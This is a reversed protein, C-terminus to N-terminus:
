DTPPALVADSTVDGKNYSVLTVELPHKETVLSKAHRIDLCGNNVLQLLTVFTRVVDTQSTRPPVVKEFTLTQNLKPFRSIVRDAYEDLVFPTRKNSKEQAALIPEIKDRWSRVRDQSEEEMETLATVHKATDECTQLFSAAPQSNLPVHDAVCDDDDDHADFTDPPREFADDDEMAAPKAEPPHVDVPQLPFPADTEMPAAFDEFIEGGQGEFIGDVATEDHQTANQTSQEDRLQQRALAKESLSQQGVLKKCLKKNDITNRGTLFDTMHMDRIGISVTSDGQKAEAHLNGEVEYPDGVFAAFPDVLTGKEGLSHRIKQQQLLGDMTPSPGGPQEPSTPDWQPEPLPMAGNDDDFDNADDQTSNQWYGGLTETLDAVASAETGTTTNHVNSIKSVNLSGETTNLQQKHSAEWLARADKNALICLNESIECICARFNFGAKDVDEFPLIDAATCMNAWARSDKEVYALFDTRLTKHAPTLNNEIDAILEEGTLQQTKKSSSSSSSASLDNGTATAEKEENRQREFIRNLVSYVLHYLLEVKKSYCQASNQILVAAEAFNVTRGGMEIDLKNLYDSLDNAIDISWSDALDKIPQIFKEWSM